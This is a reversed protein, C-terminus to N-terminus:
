ICFVSVMFPFVEEAIGEVRAVQRWEMPSGPPRPAPVLLSIHGEHCDLRLRFPRDRRIEHQHEHQHENSGFRGGPKFYWLRAVTESWSSPSDDHGLPMNASSVGFWIGMMERDLKCEWEHVGQSFGTDGMVGAYDPRSGRTRSTTRNGDSNAFSTHKKVESWGWANVLQVASGNGEGRHLDDGREVKMALLQALSGLAALSRSDEKCDILSSPRAIDTVISAALRELITNGVLAKASPRAKELAPIEDLSAVKATFVEVVTGPFRLAFIWVMDGALGSAVVGCKVRNRYAFIEGSDYDLLLGASDHRNVSHPSKWRHCCLCGTLISGLIVLLLLIHLLSAM